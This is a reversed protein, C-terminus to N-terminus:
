QINLLGALRDIRAWIQDHTQMNIPTPHDIQLLYDLISFFGRKTDFENVDGKVELSNAHTLYCEKETCDICLDYEHLGQINALNYWVELSGERSMEYLTIKTKEVYDAVWMKLESPEMSLVGFGEKIAFM